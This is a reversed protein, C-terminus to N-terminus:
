ANVAQLMPYILGDAEMSELIPILQEDGDASRMALLVGQDQVSEILYADFCAFWQERQAVTSELLVSASLLPLVFLMGAYEPSPKLPEGFTEKLKSLFPDEISDLGAMKEEAGMAVFQPHTRVIRPLEMPPPGAKAQTVWLTCTGGVGFFDARQRVAQKTMFWHCYDMMWQKVDVLGGKDIEAQLAEITLPAPLKGGPRLSVGTFPQFDMATELFRDLLDPYLSKFQLFTEPRLKNKAFAVDCRRIFELLWNRQPLPVPFRHVPIWYLSIDELATARHLPLLPNKAESLRPRPSTM